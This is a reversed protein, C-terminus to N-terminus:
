KVQDMIKVYMDEAMNLDPIHYKRASVKLRTASRTLRVLKIWIRTSGILGEISGSSSNESKITGRIRTVEVAARWLSEYPKDTEGQVTDRSAVYGGLAGVAAGVILPACGLANFILALILFLPFLKKKM